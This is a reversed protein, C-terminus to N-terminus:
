SIRQFLDRAAYINGDSEGYNALTKSGMYRWTGSLFTPYDAAVGVEDQRMKYYTSAADTHKRLESGSVTDGPNIYTGTQTGYTTTMAGSVFYALVLTGVEGLGSPLNVIDGSDNIVTTSGVKYAM